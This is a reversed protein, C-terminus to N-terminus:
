WSRYIVFRFEDGAVQDALSAVLSFRHRRALIKIKCLSVIEELIQNETTSPTRRAVRESRMFPLAARDGSIASRTSFSKRPEVGLVRVNLVRRALIAV